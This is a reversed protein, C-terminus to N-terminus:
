RLYGNASLTLGSTLLGMEGVSASETITVILYFYGFLLNSTYPKDVFHPTDPSFGKRITELKNTIM